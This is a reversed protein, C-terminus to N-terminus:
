SACAEAGYLRAQEAEVAADPMVVVGVQEVSLSAATNARRIAADLGDGRALSAAFYAVFVDGAGCPDVLMAKRPVHSRAATQSRRWPEFTTPGAGRTIIRDQLWGNQVAPLAGFFAAEPENMKLIHAHEYVDLPTTTYPDVVIIASSHESAVAQLLEVTVSGVGYDCILVVDYHPEAQDALTLPPVMLLAADNGLRSNKPTDFRLMQRRYQGFIRTKVQTKWDPLHVSRPSVGGERLWREAARLRHHNPHDTSDLEDDGVPYVCDVACGAAALNLAVNWMGGLRDYQAALRVVPVPADPAIHTADGEVFTDIIPDGLCLVRPRATLKM